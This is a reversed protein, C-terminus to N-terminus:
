EKLIERLRQVARKELRSVQVQSVGMVRAAQQQTMDRSFRLNLVERERDPLTRIADHLSLYMCTRDEIGEDGLLDSLQGGGALERDFSDVTVETQGCAAVEEVTLGAAEALESVLPSRGLKIELETEIRRVKANREKLARSVKVAGNDRLYRRIEGSIKPVAYTSFECGLEPDFGRIAKIFGMCALQYLDDPEAGRGYYRRAISWILGSNEDILRAEADRDGMASKTLLGRMEETM